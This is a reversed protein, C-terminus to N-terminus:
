IPRVCVRERVQWPSIALPPPPIASGGPGPPGSAKALPHEGFSPQAIRGTHWLQMFIRGGKAHVAAVVHAWAATQGLEDLQTPGPILMLM